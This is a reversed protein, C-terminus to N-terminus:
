RTTDHRKPAKASTQPRIALPSTNLAPRGVVSPSWVKYRTIPIVACKGPTWKRMNNKMKSGADAVSAEASSPTDDWKYGPKLIMYMRTDDCYCRYDVSNVCPCISNDAYCSPIEKSADSWPIRSMVATCARLVLIPKSYWCYDGKFVM